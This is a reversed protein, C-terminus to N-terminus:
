KELIHFDSETNNFFVFVFGFVCVVCFMTISSQIM